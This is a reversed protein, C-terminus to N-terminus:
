IPDSHALYSAKTIIRIARKQLTLLSSFNSRYAHGWVICCYNLHALVMCNYLTLLINAPLKNRVKNIIGINRSITTSIKSIHDKWNLKKDIYVGLFKVTSVQTVACADIQINNSLLSNDVAKNGFM